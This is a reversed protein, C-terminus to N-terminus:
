RAQVPTPTTLPTEEGKRPQVGRSRAQLQAVARGIRPGRRTTRAASSSSAAALQLGRQGLRSAACSARAGRRQPRRLPQPQRVDRTGATRRAPRLRTTLRKCPPWTSRASSAEPRDRAPLRPPRAGSEARPPRSKRQRRHLTCASSSTTYRRLRSQCPSGPIPRVFTDERENLGDVWDQLRAGVLPWSPPTM